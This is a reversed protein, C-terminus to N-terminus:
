PGARLNELEFDQAGGRVTDRWTTFLAHMGHSVAERSTFRLMYCYFIAIVHLVMKWNDAKHRRM